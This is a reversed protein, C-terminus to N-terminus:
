AAIRDFVLKPPQNVVNGIPKGRRKSRSGSFGVPIHNEDDEYIGSFGLTQYRSLLKEIAKYPFERCDFEIVLEGPGDLLTVNYADHPSGWNSRRWDRIDSVPVPMPMRIIRDLSFNKYAIDRIKVEDRFCLLNQPNGVVLLRVHVTM